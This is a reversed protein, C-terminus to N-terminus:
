RLVIQIARWTTALATQLAVRIQWPSDDKTWDSQVDRVVVVLMKSGAVGSEEHADIRAQEVQEFKLYGYEVGVIPGVDFRFEVRVASIRLGVVEEVSQVFRDFSQPLQVQTPRDIAKEHKLEIM